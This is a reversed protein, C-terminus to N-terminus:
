IFEYILKNSLMNNLKYAQDSTIKITTNNYLKIMAIESEDMVVDVIYCYSITHKIGNIDTLCIRIMGSIDGM